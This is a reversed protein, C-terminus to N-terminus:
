PREPGDRWRALLELLAVLGEDRKAALADPTRGGTEAEIGAVIEAKLGESLEPARLDAWWMTVAPALHEMFHPMGGSGGALAFTLHPGMLAWRLGPGHAIAADVDAVSAVGRAVADVAERWLAAQLRNVLHGPVERGIRIPRKGIQRYFAVATEVTEPATEGGAVVEVLPILHPPNFPHGVLMRAAFPQGEQLDSPMIGSSSSALITQRPLAPAIRGYLERKLWLREPANEQVFDAARVADAPDDHFRWAGPDAKPGLGLRELAPWATAIRARVREAAGEAPDWAAVTLGRSLFYAVWSAGVTGTGLVAVRRSEVM